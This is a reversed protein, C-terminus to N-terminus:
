NHKGHRREVKDTSPTGMATEMLANYRFNRHRDRPGGVADVPARAQWRTRRDLGRSGHLLFQLPAAHEAGASRADAYLRVLEERILKYTFCGRMVIAPRRMVIAPSIAVTTGAFPAHRILLAIAPAPGSAINPRSTM